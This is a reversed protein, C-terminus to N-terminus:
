WWHICGISTNVWKLLIRYLIVLMWPRFPPMHHPQQGVAPTLLIMELQKIRLWCWCCCCVAIVMHKRQLPLMHKVLAQQIHLLHVSAQM